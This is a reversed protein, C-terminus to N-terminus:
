LSSVKVVDPQATELFKGRLVKENAVQTYTAHWDSDVERDHVLLFLVSYNRQYAALQQTTNVWAVDSSSLLLSAAGEDATEDEKNM